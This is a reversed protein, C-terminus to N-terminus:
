KNLYFYCKAYVKPYVSHMYQKLVGIFNSYFCIPNGIVLPLAKSLVSAPSGESIINHFGTVAHADIVLKLGSIMTNIVLQSYIHDCCTRMPIHLLSIVNMGVFGESQMCIRYTRYM